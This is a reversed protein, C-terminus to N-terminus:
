RQREVREGGYTLRMAGMGMASKIGVGSYEGFRFLMRAYSALTAAGSIKITFEGMFAPINIGEMPFSISRLRYRTIMSKDCLMSLIDEDMMDMDESISNYKNMLSQYVLRIDPYIIYRGQQKFSTPSILEITLTHVQESGYFEKVLSQLAEENSEKKIINVKCNQKKITFDKFSSDLLPDIIMSSAEENLANVCWYIENGSKMIYQSYPHRQQTHLYDAYEASIHEFLVGQLNSSNKYGIKDNDLQMILRRMIAIGWCIIGYVNFSCIM